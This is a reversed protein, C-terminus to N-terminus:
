PFWPIEHNLSYPVFIRCLEQCHETIFDEKVDLLSKKNQIMRFECTVNPFELSSICPNIKKKFLIFHSYPLPEVTSEKEFNWM